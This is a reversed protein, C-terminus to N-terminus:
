NAGLIRWQSKEAPPDTHITSAPIFRGCKRRHQKDLRHPLKGFIRFGFEGGTFVSADNPPGGEPRWIGFFADGVSSLRKFVFTNNSRNDNQFHMVPGTM